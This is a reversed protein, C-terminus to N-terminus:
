YEDDDEQNANMEDLLDFLEDDEMQGETDSEDKSCDRYCLCNDPMDLDIDEGDCDCPELCIQCTHM